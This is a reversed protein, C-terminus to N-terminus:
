SSRSRGSRSGGLAYRRVWCPALADATSNRTLQETRGPLWKVTPCPACQCARLLKDSLERFRSPQATIWVDPPVDKM